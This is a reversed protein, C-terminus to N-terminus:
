ETLASEIEAFVEDKGMGTLIPVANIVRVKSTISPPVITTSIVVDYQSALNLVDTVKSQKLEAQIGKEKLFQQLKGMIVTSTAVGTGCIVLVKKKM